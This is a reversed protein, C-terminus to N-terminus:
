GINQFIKEITALFNFNKSEIQTTSYKLMNIANMFEFEMGWLIVFPHIFAVHFLSKEDM